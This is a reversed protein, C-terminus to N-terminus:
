SVEERRDEGRDEGRSEGRDETAIITSCTTPQVCASNRNRLCNRRYAPESIEIMQHGATHSMFQTGQQSKANCEECLDFDYCSTCHYRTGRLPSQLCGDCTIFHHVARSSRTEEKVEEKKLITFPLRRLNCRNRHFRPCGSKAETPVVLFLLLSGKNQAVRIAEEFEMNSKVTISSNEEDKYQLVFPEVQPFMNKATLVVEEWASSSSVSIRRIEDELQFKIVVTSNM